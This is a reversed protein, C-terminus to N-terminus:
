CCRGLNRDGYWSSTAGDLRSASRMGNTGDIMAASGAAMLPVTLLILTAYRALSFLESRSGCSNSLSGQFCLFSPRCWTKSRSNSLRQALGRLIRCLRRPHM